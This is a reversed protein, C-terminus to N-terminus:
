AKETRIYKYRYKKNVYELHYIYSKKWKTKTLSLSAPLPTNKNISFTLIQGDSPGGFCSVKRRMSGGTIM